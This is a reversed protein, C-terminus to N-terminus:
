RGGLRVEDRGRAAGREAAVVARRQTRLHALRGGDARRRPLLNATRKAHKLVGVIDDIALLVVVRVDVRRGRDRHVEVLGVLLLKRVEEVLFLRVAEGADLLVCEDVDEIAVVARVVVLDQNNVAAELVLVVTAVDVAGDVVVVLVLQGLVQELMATDSGVSEQDEVTFVRFETGRAHGLEDAVTITGDVVELVGLEGEGLHVDEFTAVALEKGAVAGLAERLVVDLHVVLVVLLLTFLAHALELLACLEVTGLGEGKALLADHLVTGGGAGAHTRATEAGDTDKVGAWIVGRQAV